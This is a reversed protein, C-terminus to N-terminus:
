DKVIAKFTRKAQVILLFELKGRTFIFFNPPKDEIFELIQKKAVNLCKGL